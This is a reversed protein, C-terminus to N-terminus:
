CINPWVPTRLQLWEDLLATFADDDAISAWFDAILNREGQTTRGESVLRFLVYDTVAAAARRCRENVEEQDIPGHVRGIADMRMTRLTVRDIGLIEAARGESIEASAWAILTDAALQSLVNRYLTQCDAQMQPQERLFFATEEEVDVAPVAYVPALPSVINNALRRLVTRLRQQEEPPTDLNAIADAAAALDM